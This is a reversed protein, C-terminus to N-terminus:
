RSYTLPRPDVAPGPASHETRRHYEDRALGIVRHLEEDAFPQALLDYAGRHLVESWLREDALRSTVIVNPSDPTRCWELVDLWTGDPLQAECVVVPFDRPDRLRLAAISRARHHSSRLRRLVRALSRQSEILPSVVLIPVANM